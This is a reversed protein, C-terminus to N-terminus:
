IKWTIPLTDAALNPTTRGVPIDPFSDLTARLRQPDVEVWKGRLLALGDSAALLVEIEALTLTDGDLTVGVEFDLLADTGLVSPAAAGVTASVKARAPRNMRWSVPM